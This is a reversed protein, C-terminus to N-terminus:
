MASLNTAQGNKSRLNQWSRITHCAIKRQGRSRRVSVERLWQASKQDKITHKVAWNGWVRRPKCSTLLRRVPPSSQHWSNNINNRLNSCKGSAQHRTTQIKFQNQSVRRDLLLTLIKSSKNASKVRKTRSLTITLWLTMGDIAAACCRWTKGRMPSCRQRAKSTSYAASWWPM